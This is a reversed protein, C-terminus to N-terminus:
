ENTDKLILTDSPLIDKAEKLGDQTLWKHNATCEFSTEGNSLRGIKTSNYVNIVKIPSLKYSSTQIDYTLVLDGEKIENWRKGGEPTKILYDLPLCSSFRGTVTGNTDIHSTITSDPRINKLISGEGAELQSLDKKLKLYEKLIMGEPIELGELSDADVKPNGTPTYYPFEYGYDQRLWHCIKQRSGPNFKTLKIKQYEGTTYSYHVTHPETFYKYKSKAPLKWKGNKTRDLQSIRRFPPRSKFQYTPNPLYRKERRPKAPTTLPGNPLFKPKFVKLLQRELNDAKFKMSLFLERAKEKDVYFGVAEQIAVMEAAKCEVLMVQENPCNPKTVLFQYLKYTLDVDQACYVAMQETLQSFDDFQLKYDGFRCGFAKLSYKGWLDKPMNIIGADMATLMDSTYIIKAAILTDWVPPTIKGVINEIVPKDFKAFNHGIVLDCSNILNLAAQLNGSSYPTYLYTFIKTPEDNVKVGICYIKDIFFIGTSPITTSEIDVTCVKM